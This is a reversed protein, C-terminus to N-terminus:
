VQIRKHAAQCLLLFIAGEKCHFIRIKKNICMFTEWLVRQFGFQPLVRNKLPCAPSHPSGFRSINDSVKLLAKLKAESLKQLEKGLYNAEQLGCAVSRAAERGASFDLTKAPSLIVIM